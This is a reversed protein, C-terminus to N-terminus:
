AYLGRLVAAANIGGFGANVALVTDCGARWPVSVDAAWGAAEPDPTTLGVTVPTMRASFSECASIVQTLGASGMSHGVAGKVSYIPLPQSFIRKFAKLEMGDNYSTGTGHAAIMAIDAPLCSSQRLAHEIAGALGSGDRSPGTMHNADNTMGCGALVAKTKAGHAAAYARSAFVVYGAAEGATLGARAADFPRAGNQDLALLSSFGAYVFETVADAAAVTVVDAEGSAIMARARMCAALTSACAASIVTVEASMGFLEKVRLATDRLLSPTADCGEVSQETLDVEGVTSAFLLVSETPIRHGSVLRAFMQMVLSSGGHYTLGDVCCAIQAPFQATSFRAVKKASSRGGFIGGMLAAAGIGYPTIVDYDVICVDRDSVCISGTEM